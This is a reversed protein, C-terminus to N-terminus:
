MHQDAWLMFGVLLKLGSEPVRQSDRARADPPLVLTDLVDRRLVHDVRARLPEACRRVGSWADGDFDNVRYWYRSETRSFRRRVKHFEMRIQAALRQRLRPSIYQPHDALLDSRDLPVSALEPLHSEILGLQATRTALSAAPLRSAVRILERDLAPIVPWSGLSLHWAMGGVHFREGHALDYCWARHAGSHGYSEFERRLLSETEQVLDAYEPKLLQRLVDAPVGLKPMNATFADYSMGPPSPSYAWAISIGGVVADALLGTVLRDGLQAVRSRTWWDRVTNFGNALHEWQAQLRAYGPYCAPDPEAAAHELGLARAVAAACRMDLDGPVGLTLARPSIGQHVLFGALMRSDLGGSLLLGYRPGQPAQRRVAAAVADGLLAIDGALPLGTTDVAEPIRYAEVEQVGDACARLLHGPRLRRVDQWLTAGDVLGNTMLIGVLAAVSFRKRFEPHLDFLETSTGILVVGNGHWYYIPFVGFLDAGVVLRGIVDASLAGYFGDWVTLGGNNWAARVDAATARQGQADYATGWVVSGGDATSVSDIPASPSAAWVATWVGHECSGATLDPVLAIKSRVAAVYAARRATDADLVVLVNAM